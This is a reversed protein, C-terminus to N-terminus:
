AGESRATAKDTISWIGTTSLVILLTLGMGICPLLMAKQPGYLDIVYGTVLSGIPGFGMVGMQFAALLRARMDDPAAEQIITRSMTMVIGAGIGWTFMIGAFLVFPVDRTMLYCISTGASLGIVMLRGRHKIHGLRMITLASIVTGLFFSIHLTAIQQAAGEFVDRVFMPVAVMFSGVFFFGIASNCIMIPSLVKSTFLFSVAEGISRAYRRLDRGLPEHSVDHQAMRIRSLSLGGLIMMASHVLFFPAAGTYKAFAALAMGVLQGGFQLATAFAIFRNLSSHPVLHNLLSDRAPVALTTLTGAFIAYGVLLGFSLKDAFLISALFLPPIAAIFHLKILYSREDLHDAIVGAPLLLILGPGMIALQAMGIYRADLGLVFASLFPFLVMQLGMAAYWIGQGGFYWPLSKSSIEAGTASLVQDPNAASASTDTSAAQSPDGTQNKDNLAQTGGQKRDTKLDGIKLGFFM